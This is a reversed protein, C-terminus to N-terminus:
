FLISGEERITEVVVSDGGKRGILLVRMQFFFFCFFKRSGTDEKAKKWDLSAQVQDKGEKSRM